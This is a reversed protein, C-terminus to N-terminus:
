YSVADIVKLIRSVIQELSSPFDSRCQLDVHTFYSASKLFIRLRHIFFFERGVKEKRQLNNSTAPQSKPESPESPESQNESILVDARLYSSPPSLYQTWPDTNPDITYIHSIYCWCWQVERGVTHNHKIHTYTTHGAELHCYHQHRQKQSPLALHPHPDGTSIVSGIPSCPRRPFSSYLRV